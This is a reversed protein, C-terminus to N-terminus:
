TYKELVITGVGPLEHQYTAKPISKILSTLAVLAATQERPNGSDKAGAIIKPLVRNMFKQAYLIRLIAHHKKTLVDDAAAVEGIAKAADWSIAEDGFAEFIKDTFQLALSHNRVLLAKSVWIWAKIANRRRETTVNGDRIEKEWFVSLVINAFRDLGDIDVRKNLISALIHLAAERQLDSEANTLSWSLMKDLFANLDPVIPCVEKRLPLVAASFLTLLHKQGTPAADSLVSLKKEAAIKQHRETMVKVNGELLADYLATAYSEQRALPLVQVVLAVIEGTKKILRPDTAVAVRKRWEDKEEGGRDESVALAAFVFLNFLRSVLREIYKPVDPDDRDVKKKLTKALTTLIWHAYAAHLEVEEETASLSPLSTVNPVCILDLKTTLRIILTEFLQADVCLTELASLVNLIKVRAPIDNRAPPTDPLSSFLLPLTQAEVPRPNVKAVASLVELVADSADDLEDSDAELIENVNHVVFGLEEDTLLNETTVMGQLGTLASRRTSAAKLGVTLIGIVEDKYPTLLPATIETEMDDDIKAPQSQLKTFSDRAATIFEALVTLIPGRNGAEDPDHFLKVLHPIAQSTTYKAVSPTTSMFACLIKAAPKAQSKEPEKLIGICEECVERAFGQIDKDDATPGDTAHITKVLIQITRLAEEENVSDT